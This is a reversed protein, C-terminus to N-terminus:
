SVGCFTGGDTFSTIWAVGAKREIPLRAAPRTTGHSSACVRAEIRVSKKASGVQCGLDQFNARIKLKDASILAVAPPHITELCAMLHSVKEEPRFEPAFQGARAVEV